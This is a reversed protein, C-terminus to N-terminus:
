NCPTETTAILGENYWYGVLVGCGKVVTCM